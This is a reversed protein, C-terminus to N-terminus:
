SASFVLDLSRESEIKEALDHSAQKGLFKFVREFPIPHSSGQPDEWEPCNAHTYDRLEFGDMHGFEAWIEGLIELDAESLEDLDDNSIDARALVVLHGARDSIFSEWNQRDEQCGNIYDLTTSNVPGHSMSAFRDNLITSEYREMFKRDSLYILKVVKLVNIGGGSEKAFYATVQAAKRVNFSAM